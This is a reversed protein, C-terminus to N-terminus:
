RIGLVAKPDTDPRFVVDEGAALGAWVLACEQRELAVLETNIQRLRDRKDGPNMLKDADEVIQEAQKILEAIIADRHLWCALAAADHARPIGGLTSPVARVNREPWKISFDEGSERMEIVPKEIVANVKQAVRRALNTDVAAKTRPAEATLDRHQTRVKAVADVITRTGKPMTPEAPDFTFDATGDRVKRAIPEIAEWVPRWIMTVKRASAADAAKRLNAVTAKQAAIANPDSRYASQLHALHGDAEGYEAQASRQSEYVGRAVHREETARSEIFGVRDLLNMPEPSPAPSGNLAKTITDLM